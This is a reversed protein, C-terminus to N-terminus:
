RPRERHEGRLYASLREGPAPQPATYPTAAPPAVPQPAPTSVARVEIRGITVRVVPAPTPQAPPPTMPAATEAAAPVIEPVVEPAHEDEDTLRHVVEQLVNLNTMVETHHVEHIQNVPHTADVTSLSTAADPVVAVNTTEPDPRAAPAAAEVGVDHEDTDESATGEYRSPLRPEVTPRGGNVARGGLRTFYDSRGSPM